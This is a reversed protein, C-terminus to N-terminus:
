KNAIKIKYWESIITPEIINSMIFIIFIKSLIFEKNTRGLFLFHVLAYTSAYLLAKLTSLNQFGMLIVGILVVCSLFLNLSTSYHLFIFNNGFLVEKNDVLAERENELELFHRWLTSVGLLLSSFLFVYKWMYFNSSPLFFLLPWLVYITNLINIFYDYFNSLIGYSREIFITRGVSLTSVIKGVLYDGVFITKNSQFFYFINKFFDGTVLTYQPVDIKKKDESYNIEQQINQIMKHFEKEKIIECPIDDNLELLAIPIHNLNSVIYIHSNPYLKIYQNIADKVEVRLFLNDFKMLHEVSELFEDLNDNLYADIVKWINFLGKHKLYIFILELTTNEGLLCDNLHVFIKM